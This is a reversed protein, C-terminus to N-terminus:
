LGKRARRMPAGEWRVLSRDRHVLLGICKEEGDSWYRRLRKLVKVQQQHSETVAEVHKSM